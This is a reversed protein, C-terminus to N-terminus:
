VTPKARWLPTSATAASFYFTTRPWWNKQFLLATHSIHRLLLSYIIRHLSVFFPGEPKNPLKHTVFHTQDATYFSTITIYAAKNSRWLPTFQFSVQRELVINSLKHPPSSKPLSPHVILVSLCTDGKCQKGKQLPVHLEWSSSWFPIM